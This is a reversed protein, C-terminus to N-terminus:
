RANHLYISVTISILSLLATVILGVSYLVTQRHAPKAVEDDGRQALRGEITSIRSEFKADELATVRDELGDHRAVADRIAGGLDYLRDLIRQPDM